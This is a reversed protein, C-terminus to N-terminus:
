ISCIAYMPSFASGPSEHVTDLVYIPPSPSSLRPSSRVSQAAQLFSEARFSIHRAHRSGTIGVTRDARMSIIPPYFLLIPEIAYLALQDIGIGRIFSARYAEAQERTPSANFLEESTCAGAVEVFPAGELIDRVKDLM